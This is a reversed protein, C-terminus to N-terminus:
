IIMDMVTVEGAGSAIMSNIHNGGTHTFILYGQCIPIYHVLLLGYYFLVYRLRFLKVVRSYYVNFHHWLPRSPTEFWWGWWQKSLQKNLRLCFFMLAGCRQGKHRSNVPSRHIGRVFPWYCPFEKWKIVDDHTVKFEFSLPTDTFIYDKRNYTALLPGHFWVSQKCWSQPINQPKSKIMIEELASVLECIRNFTLCKGSTTSFISYDIQKVQIHVFHPIQNVRECSVGSKLLHSNHVGENSAGGRQFFIISALILYAIDQLIEVRNRRFTQAKKVWHLKLCQRHNILIQIYM